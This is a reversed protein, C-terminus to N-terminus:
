EPKLLSSVTRNVWSRNDRLQARQEPNMLNFTDKYWRSGPYNVGLVIAVRLAEDKLGLATYCEVLRHLAEPTHSTTQYTEIVDKFRNLAANLEGKKQYYRGIEMEKGALHDRALDMKLRADRAYQSNPFRKVVVDFADMAQQTVAQDRTIDSLQEYYCMAKLYHMYDIQPHSPHLEIFRDIAIIAEDYRLAKYSIEASKIQAITSLEAYPHQREVEEFLAKARIYERNKAAETAESFIQEASREATSVPADVKKSTGCGVLMFSSSLLVTFLLLLRMTKEEKLSL